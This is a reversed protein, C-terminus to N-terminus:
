VGQNSIGRFILLLYSDASHSTRLLPEHIYLSIFASSWLHFRPAAVQQVARETFAETELVALRALNVLGTIEMSKKMVIRKDM